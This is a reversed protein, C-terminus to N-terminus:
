VGLDPAQFLDVGDIQWGTPIQIMRYVIVHLRGMPGRLLVKQYLVGDIERQELFRVERNDWVMPYGQAVMAGFRQPNGFLRKIMPSAYGFATSVDRNKFAELQQSIVDEITDTTQAGASIPFLWIVLLAALFQKMM